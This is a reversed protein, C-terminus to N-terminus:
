DVVIVIAAATVLMVLAATTVETDLTPILWNPVWFYGEM